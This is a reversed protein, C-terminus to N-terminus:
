SDPITRASRVIPVQHHVTRASRFDYMRTAWTVLRHSLLQMVLELVTPSLTASRQTEGKASVSGQYADTAQFPEKTAQFHGALIASENVRRNSLFRYAAKTNTWDQCTREIAVTTGGAPTDGESRLIDRFVETWNHKPTKAGQVIM